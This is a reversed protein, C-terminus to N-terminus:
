YNCYKYNIRCVLCHEKKREIEKFTKITELSCRADNTRFLKFTELCINELEALRIGNARYLHNKSDFLDAVYIRVLVISEQLESIPVDTLSDIVIDESVGDDPREEEYKFLRGKTEQFLVSHKIYDYIEQRIKSETKM